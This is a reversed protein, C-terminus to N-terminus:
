ALGNGTVWCCRPSYSKGSGVRWVDMGMGWIRCPQWGALVGRVECCKRARRLEASGPRDGSGLAEIEGLSGSLIWREDPSFAASWVDSSHGTFTRVERGTAVEWLKITQDGSGSLAWQGDPSFAVSHVAETHGMFSRVERGTAVEWLKVTGSGGSLVWQGDSSFAVSGADALHGTQVFVEPHGEAYVRGVVNLLFMCALVLLRSKM